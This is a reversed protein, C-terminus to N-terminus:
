KDALIRYVSAVGIGLERAVAAKGKGTALLAKADAAKAMATPKRGKYKGAAKAAEIGDRQRELMLEREFTAIAGLITLLLEGQPTTTDIPSNLIRLGVDKDELEKAIALLHSTSRALRDLKTCVVVDGPRVYELLAALEVRETDVGSRKEQFIKCCGAAKLAAIQPEINQERTSVRAYGVVQGQGNDKVVEAAKGGAKGRARAM